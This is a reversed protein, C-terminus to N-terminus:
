ETAVKRDRASARFGKMWQERLMAEGPIDRFPCANTHQGIDEARYGARYAAQSEDISQSLAAELSTQPFGAHRECPTKKGSFYTLDRCDSCARDVRSSPRSSRAGAVESSAESDRTAGPRLGNFQVM